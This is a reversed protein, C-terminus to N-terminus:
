AYLDLRARGMSAATLGSLASIAGSPLPAARSTRLQNAVRSLLWARRRLAMIQALRITTDIAARTDIV